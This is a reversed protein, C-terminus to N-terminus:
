TEERWVQKLHRGVSLASGALGILAGAALGLAIQWPEFFTTAVLNRSIVTSAIWTLFLAVIGGVLGKLLGDILYPSRVFWDTAGVLRMIEIERARSLVAMRITSGIIIIAVLAFVLGLGTGAFAAITRIRYLKEVWEEGYRVEDVFPYGSLRGAVNKVNTPDRFGDKLKVEISSPLVAVDLVDKFEPLELRARALGSDPSVFGAQAVEPFATADGLLTAIADEGTGDALFVRIEVRNEVDRLAARLNVALLGFLGFAFLSFAITTVSLLGLLPARRFAM